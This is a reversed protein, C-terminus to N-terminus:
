KNQLRQTSQKPKRTTSEELKEPNRLWDRCPRGESDLPWGPLTKLNVKSNSRYPLQRPVPLGQAECRAQLKHLKEKADLRKETQYKEMLDRFDSIQLGKYLGNAFIYRGQVKIVRCGDMEVLQGDRLRGSGKLGFQLCKSDDQEEQKEQIAAMKKEIIDLECNAISLRAEAMLLKEMLASPWESCPRYGQAIRREQYAQAEVELGKIEAELAPITAKHSDRFADKFNGDQDGVLRNKISWLGTADVTNVSMSLETGNLIESKKYLREYEKDFLPQEGKVHLRKLNM